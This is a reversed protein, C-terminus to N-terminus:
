AHSPRVANLRHPRVEDVRAIVVKGIETGLGIIDDVPPRAHGTM